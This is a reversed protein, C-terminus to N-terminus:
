TVPIGPRYILKHSITAERKRALDLEPTAGVFCNYNSWATVNGGMNSTWSPLQLMVNAGINPWSKNADYVCTTSADFGDDLLVAIAAFGNNDEIEIPSGNKPTVRLTEVIAGGVTNMGPNTGWIITTLGKLAPSPM